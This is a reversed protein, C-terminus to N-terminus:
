DESWDQNRPRKYGRKNHFGGRSRLHRQGERGSKRVAKMHDNM